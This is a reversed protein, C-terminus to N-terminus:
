PAFKRRRKLMGLLLRETQRCRVLLVELREDGVVEADKALRLLEGTEVASGYAIALHRTFTPSEGFTYGEAINLQISLSARQLQNFLAAAYPKWSSRALRIVAISIAHAEQWARLSTHDRVGYTTDDSEEAVVGVM